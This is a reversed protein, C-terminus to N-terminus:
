EFVPTSHELGALLRHLPERAIGQVEGLRLPGQELVDAPVERDCRLRLHRPCHLLAHGSRDCEDLVLDLRAREVAPYGATTRRRSFALGALARRPGLAVVARR